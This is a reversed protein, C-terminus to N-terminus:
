LNFPKRVIVKTIIKNIREHVGKLTARRKFVTIHFWPITGGAASVNALTIDNNPVAVLGIAQLRNRLSKLRAKLLRKRLAKQLFCAFQSGETLFMALTRTFCVRIWWTLIQGVDQRFSEYNAYFSSETILLIFALLTDVVFFQIRM